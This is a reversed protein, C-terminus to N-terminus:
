AKAEELSVSETIEGLVVITAATTLIGKEDSYVTGAPKIWPELCAPDTVRLCPGGPWGGDDKQRSMLEAHLADADQRAGCLAAVGWAHAVDFGAARERETPLSVPSQPLGLQRRLALCGYTAYAPTTWWYSPWAGGALRTKALFDELAPRLRRQAGPDLARFAQATVCVHPTGWADDGRYTSFGGQPHWHELLFALDESRVPEGLRRLLRMALATSDADAGTRGNYGWGAEHSRESQLWAAARTAGAGAEPIGFTQHAFSLALGAFATV